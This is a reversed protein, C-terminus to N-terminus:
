KALAEHALKLVKEVEALKDAALVYTEDKKLIEHYKDLAKDTLTKCGDAEFHSVGDRNFMDPRHPEKFHRSTHSSTLFSFSPDKDLCAFIEESNISEADVVLGGRLRQTIGFIENDIILQIPSNTKATELQLTIM